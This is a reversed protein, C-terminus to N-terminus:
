SSTLETGLFALSFPLPAGRSSGEPEGPAERSENDRRGGFQQGSEDAQWVCPGRCHNPSNCGLPSPWIPLSPRQLPTPSMNGCQRVRM